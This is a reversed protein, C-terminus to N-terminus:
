SGQAKQGTKPQTLKMKRVLKTTNMFDEIGSYLLIYNLLALIENPKSHWRLYWALPRVFLWGKVYGNLVACAVAKNFNRGHHKMLMFAQEITINDLQEQTIGTALYYRAVRHITGEFLSSVTLTITKTFLRMFWPSRVKIKVGKQLLVDATRKEVQPNDKM